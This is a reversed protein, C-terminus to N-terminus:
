SGLELHRSFFDVTRQWALEAAPKDYRPTTDNHFGHNVGAYDYNTFNRGADQLSKEFDPWSANVREDLEAHHLMLPARIAEAEDASPHRGYFAVAAAVDPLRVALRMAMGGGFCFGVAGVKGTCDPHQQLFQVAAVFDEIMEAGDRQRQLARGDDDNGPYGGLPTLADPAFAIFGAMGLRRAVDEIYPNLGRNEHIIVVAPLKHQIVAPRAYYGRMIGAGKPSTYKKYSVSLAKDNPDVQQALAYDPSLSKLLMAAAVGSATVAAVRDLFERRTIQGHVYGDFLQMVRRDMDKKESM